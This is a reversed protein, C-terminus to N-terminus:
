RALKWKMKAAVLRSFRADGGGGQARPLSFVGPALRCMATVLGGTLTSEILRNVGFGVHGFGTVAAKDM